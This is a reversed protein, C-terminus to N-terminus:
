SRLLAGAGHSTLWDYALAFVREKGYDVTIVHGGESVWELRKDAAGLRALAQEAVGAPVRNDRRSQILLTPARVAQLVAAAAAATARLARVGAGTFVGYALGRAAADPDRVSRVDQSPVYPLAVGIVRSLTAAIRLARPLELYPAMLVIAQVGPREVATLVALAGGMSLGAIGTWPRGAATADYAALAAARWASATVNRFDRVTRGHGPLLPASVAFGRAHLFEGFERLTQPTDGAGHLLLVAPAGPRDLVFGEAGVVVGDADRTRAADAAETGRVVIWRVAFLAVALAALAILSPLM